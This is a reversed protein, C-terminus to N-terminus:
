CQYGGSSGGGERIRHFVAGTCSSLVKYLKRLATSGSNWRRPNSSMGYVSVHFESVPYGGICYTHGCRSCAAGMYVSADRKCARSHQPSADVAHAVGCWDCCHELRLITDPVDGLSFGPTVPIRWFPNPNIYFVCQPHACIRYQVDEGPPAVVPQIDPSASPQGCPTVPSSERNPMGRHSSVVKTM